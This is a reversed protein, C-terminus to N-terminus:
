GNRMRKHVGTKFRPCVVIAFGNHFSDRETTDGKGLTGKELNRMVIMGM